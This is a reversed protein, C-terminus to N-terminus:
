LYFAFTRPAKINGSTINSKSLVDDRHSLCCSTDISLVWHISLLGPLACQTMCIAEAKCLLGDLGDFTVLMVDEADSACAKYGDFVLHPFLFGRDVWLKYFATLWDRLPTPSQMVPRYPTTASSM